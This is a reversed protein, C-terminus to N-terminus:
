SRSLSASGIMDQSRSAIEASYRSWMRSDRSPDRPAVPLAPPPQPQLQHFYRRHLANEPSDCGNHCQEQKSGGARVDQRVVACVDKIRLVAAAAHVDGAFRRRHVLFEGLVDGGLHVVEDIMHAACRDVHQALRALDAVLADLLARGQLEHVVLRGIGRRVRPADLAIVAGIGRTDRHFLVHEAVRESAKALVTSLTPSFLPVAQTGTM